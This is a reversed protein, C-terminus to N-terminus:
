NAPLVDVLVTGFDCSGYVSCIRFTFSDLGTFGPEPSYGFAGGSQTSAGGHSPGRVIAGSSLNLDAVDGEFPRVYAFTHQPTQVVAPRKEGCWPNNPALVGTSCGCDCLVCWCQGNACRASCTTAPRAHSPMPALVALAVCFLLSSLLVNSQTITKM